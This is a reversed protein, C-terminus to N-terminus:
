LSEQPSKEYEIFSQPPMAEASIFQLDPNSEIDAKLKDPQDTLFSAVLKDGERKTRFFSGTGVGNRASRVQPTHKRINALYDMANKPHFGNASEFRVVYIGKVFQNLWENARAQNKDVGHTGNHYAKWLNYQAWRNGAKASETQRSIYLYDPLGLLQAREAQYEAKTLAGANKAKQLDILQQGVTPYQTIQTTRPGNLCGTLFTMASLGVLVPIITKKM